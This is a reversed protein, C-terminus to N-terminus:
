GGSGGGMFINSERPASSAATSSLKLLPVQPSYTVRAQHNVYCINSLIQVGQM